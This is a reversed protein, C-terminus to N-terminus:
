DSAIPFPEGALAPISQVTAFFDEFPGEGFDSQFAGSESQFSLLADLPSQSNKSWDNDSSYWDEGVSALGQIVIATSNASTGFGPSYAWGGSDEQSTRLYDLASAVSPDNTAKRSAVLAVIALATADANNETGFGDDWSGNEAQRNELWNVATEPLAEGAAALGLIALSQKFPDDVSYTGDPNLHSELIDVVDVGDFDRPDFGTGALALILKGAQGGNEQAYARVAPMNAKLFDVLESDQVPDIGAFDVGSGALALMVDVTGGVDSPALNAGISFSSFGGDDNQHEGVLWDVAREVQVTTDPLGTPDNRGVEGVRPFIVLASVAVAALLIVGIWSDKRNSNMVRQGNGKKGRLNVPSDFRYDNV